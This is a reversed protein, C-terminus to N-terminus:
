GWGAGIPINHEYRGTDPEASRAKRAPASQAPQTTAANTTQRPNFARVSATDAVTSLTTTLLWVLALFSPTFRYM